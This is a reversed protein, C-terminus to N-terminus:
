TNRRRLVAIAVLAAAACCCTAPEPVAAIAAAMPPGGFNAQWLGLDADDVDGDGDADGTSANPQGTLGVGRQWILFDEGDVDNDGDFDGNSPDIDVFPTDQAAVFRYVGTTDEADDDYAVGAAGAPFLNFEDTYTIQPEAPKPQGVEWVFGSLVNGVVHFEMVVDSLPSFPIDVSEDVISAGESLVLVGLSMSTDFYLGYGSLTVPDLRALLALNGEDQEPLAGPLIVGQTRMYVDSFGTPVFSIMQNFPGTPDILRYDGTSADYTGAFLGSGGLDEVWTVPNGDTASGDSFDDMWAVARAAGPALVLLSLATALNWLPRRVVTM